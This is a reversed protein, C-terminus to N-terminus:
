YLGWSVYQSGADGACEMFGKAGVQGGGGYLAISQTIINVIDQSGTHYTVDGSVGSNDVGFNCTGFSAIDRQSGIGTTWEGNTGQINKIITQCDSVTPSASSTQDVYTYASCKTLGQLPNCPYGPATANSQSPNSWSALAIQPSCVPLTIYGPATIDQNTLDQITQSDTPNAAPGGNANGNAVYTNVSGAILDSITVNGWSSGLDSLGPPATFLSGSCVPPPPNVTDVTLAIDEGTCSHYDGAASVLYYLNGNYCSYSDEATDNSMYQGLPNVTGCPYGSDVVFAAAGSVTWLAPIAYGFFARQIFDEIATSSSNDILPGKGNCEILNGDAIMTTLLAVSADSGNFLNSLQNEVVAAWAGLANGMNQSFSSQSEQTWGARCVSKTLLNSEDIDIWFLPTSQRL